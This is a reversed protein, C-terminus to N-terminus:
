IRGRHISFGQNDYVLTAEVQESGDLNPTPRRVVVRTDSGITHCKGQQCEECEVASNQGGAMCEACNSGAM